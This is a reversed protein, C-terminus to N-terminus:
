DEYLVIEIKKLEEFDDEVDYVGYVKFDGDIETEVAVGNEVEGEIVEDLKVSLSQSSVEDIM